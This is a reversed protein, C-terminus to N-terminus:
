SFQSMLGSSGPFVVGENGPVALGEVMEGGVATILWWREQAKGKMFSWLAAGHNNVFPVASKSKGLLYLLVSPSAMQITNSNHKMRLLDPAVQLTWTSSHALHSATTYVFPKSMQFAQWTRSDLWPDSAPSVIGRQRTEGGWCLGQIGPDVM